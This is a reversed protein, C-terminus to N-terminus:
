GKGIQPMYVIHLAAELAQLRAVIDQLRYETQVGNTELQTVRATLAAIQEEITPPPAEIGAWIKMDQETGNYYDLDISASEAGFEHGRPFVGYQWFKWSTWPKPITPSAVMYNAVWLPFKAFELNTTVGYSGWYGPSTYLMPTKGTRQQVDKLFRLCIAAATARIPAGTSMEYDMVPPLEGPDNNIIQCFLNIQIDYSASWDYFHYAGRPLIGEANIWNNVYDRDLYGKQSAKIFVFKAGAAKSKAFDMMQPTSVDNQWLSIDLGLTTIM